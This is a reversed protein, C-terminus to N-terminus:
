RAVKTEAGVCVYASSKKPDNEKKEDIEIYGYQEKLHEQHEKELIEMSMNKNESM